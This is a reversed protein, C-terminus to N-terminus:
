IECLIPKPKIDIAVRVANLKLTTLTGISLDLHEIRWGLIELSAFRVDFQIGEDKIHRDSYKALVVTSSRM